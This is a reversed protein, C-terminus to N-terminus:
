IIPLSIPNAKFKKRLRVTIPSTANATTAHPLGVTGGIVGLGVGSAGASDAVNVDAGNGASTLAAEAGIAVEAVEVDVGSSM